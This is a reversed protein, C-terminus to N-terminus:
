PQPSRILVGRGDNRFDCWRCSSRIRLWPSKARASIRDRPRSTCDNGLVSYIWRNQEPGCDCQPYCINEHKRKPVPPEVGATWMLALPDRPMLLSSEQKGLHGEPSYWDSSTVWNRRNSTGPRRCWCPTTPRPCAPGRGSPLSESSSVLPWKVRPAQM